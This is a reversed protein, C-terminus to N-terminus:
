AALNAWNKLNNVMEVLEPPQASNPQITADLTARRLVRLMHRLSWESDWEGMVERLSLAEPSKQGVTLYWVMLVSQMSWVWPAVKEVSGRCWHQPAEIDMVQKSARFLVEVSWRGAFQTVVWNADAERDTTFLYCDKMRGDPDRVVWVRIARSGLVRPWVVEYDVVWASRRRGYVTVEVPRWVWRGVGTRERDAKAAAERPKPLRPGRRAKAGRRGKKAKPVHPDYVAADGRLRGVFVVREDLDSLLEKCAYAGDGVLTFTRDPFWGLVEALMQKALGACGPQDKGPRHLRALLPLALIPTDTGPLRYAIALVVWNHGSATAVRKQTSAVADRWWGLGWVCKGRKHALTDDVLLTIRGLFRLHTLILVAARHALATPTWASRAFFNFSTDLGHPRSCDPVTEPQASLATRTLTHRGLCMVWGLFLRSASNFSPYTFAGALGDVLPRLSDIMHWM